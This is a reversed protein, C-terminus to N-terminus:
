GSLEVDVNLAHEKKLISAINQLSRGGKWTITANSAVSNYIEKNVSLNVFQVLKEGGDLFDKFGCDETGLMNCSWKMLIQISTVIFDSNISM